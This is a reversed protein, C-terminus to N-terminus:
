LPFVNGILELLFRSNMQLFYELGPHRSIHQEGHGPDMVASAATEAVLSRSAKECYEEASRLSTTIDRTAFVGLM